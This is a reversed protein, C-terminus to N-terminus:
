KKATGASLGAVDSPSSVKKINAWTPVKVKDQDKFSDLELQIPMVSPGMGKLAVVKSTLNAISGGLETLHHFVFM